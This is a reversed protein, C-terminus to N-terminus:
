MMTIVLLPDSTFFDCHLLDVRESADFVVVSLSEAIMNVAYGALVCLM